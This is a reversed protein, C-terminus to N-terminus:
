KSKKSKRERKASARKASASKASARKASARNVTSDRNDAAQLDFGLAKLAKEIDNGENSLYHEAEESTLNIKGWSSIFVRDKLEKVKSM